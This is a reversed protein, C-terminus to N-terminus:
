ANAGIFKSTCYSEDITFGDEITWKVRNTGGFIIGGEFVHQICFDNIDGGRVWYQMANYVISSRIHDWFDYHNHAWQTIVKNFIKTESETM